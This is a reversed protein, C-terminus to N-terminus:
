VLCTLGALASVDILGEVLRARTNGNCCPVPRTPGASTSGCPVTRVTIGNCCPVPRTPGASTSGCPVTRVTIGNFCPVPVWGVIGRYRFESKIQAECAATEHTHDTNVFVTAPGPKRAPSYTPALPSTVTAVPSPALTNTPPEFRVTASCGIDSPPCVPRLTAM